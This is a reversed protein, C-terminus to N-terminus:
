ASSAMHTILEGRGSRHSEPASDNDVIWLPATRALEKAQPPGSQTWPLSATIIGVKM